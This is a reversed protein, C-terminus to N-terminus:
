LVSKEYRASRFNFNLGAFFGISCGGLREIVLGGLDTLNKAMQKCKCASNALVRKRM